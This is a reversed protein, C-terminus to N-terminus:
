WSRDPTGCKNFLDLGELRSSSIGDVELHDIVKDHVLYIVDFEITDMLDQRYGRDRDLKIDVINISHSLNLDFNTM